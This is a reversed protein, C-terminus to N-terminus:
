NMQVLEILLGPKQKPMADVRRLLEGIVSCRCVCLDFAQIGLALRKMVLLASMINGLRAHHLDARSNGGYGRLCFRKTPAHLQAVGNHFASKHKGFLLRLYLLHFLLFFTM